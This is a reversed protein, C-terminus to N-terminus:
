VWSEPPKRSCPPLPLLLRQLVSRTVRERNKETVEKEASKGSVKKVKVEPTSITIKPVAKVFYYYEDDEFQLYETRTYDVNFAFFEIVKAILIAVLTGLVLSLVSIGTDYRLDGVLLIVVNTVGGVIM